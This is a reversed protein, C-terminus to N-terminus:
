LHNFNTCDVTLSRVQMKLRCLDEPLEVLWFEPDNQYSEKEVSLYLELFVPQLTKATVM